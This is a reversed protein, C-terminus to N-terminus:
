SVTVRVVADIFVTAIVGIVLVWGVMEMILRRESKEPKPERTKAAIDCLDDLPNM